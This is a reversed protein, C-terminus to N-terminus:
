PIAKPRRPEEVLRAFQKRKRYLTSSDIGLLRAAAELSPTRQVIAEIHSRELAEISVADGACLSNRQLPLASADLMMHASRMIAFELANRLERLNEPWDHTMLLQLADPSLRRTPSGMRQAMTGLLHQSLMQLDGFRERLPPIQFRAQLLCQYLAKSFQGEAVREALDFQTGVIIRVNSQRLEPEGARQYSRHEILRLLRGQLAEPLLAIEDIFLSGGEALGLLSDARFEREGFLRAALSSRGTRCDVRVFAAERRPGISHLYRAIRSKGAGPEACLLLCQDSAAQRRLESLLHQVAPESSGLLPEPERLAQAEQEIEFATLRQLRRRLRLQERVTQLLLSPHCPKPLCAGAGEPIRPVASLVVFRMRPNGQLWRGVPDSTSLAHPDIVCVDFEERALWRDAQTVSAAQVAQHGSEELLRQLSTRAASDADVILVRASEQSLGRGSGAHQFDFMDTNTVM